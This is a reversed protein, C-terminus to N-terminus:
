FWKVPKARRRCRTIGKLLAGNTDRIGTTYAKFIPLTKV